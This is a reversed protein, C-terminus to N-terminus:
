ARLDASSEVGVLRNTAVAAGALGPPVSYRHGRYAVLAQRSVVGSEVLAAPYPAAPVPRLTESAAVTAVSARRDAATPHLCTAGRVSLSGTVVPGPRRSPGSTPCPAGGANRAPHNIKEVVGQPAGLPVPLDGGHRRLAERGPRVPGHDPGVGSSLRHGDPRVALRTVGGLERSIRDRGEGLQPQDTLPSLYGRWCGPHALSGVLLHATRGWRWHASPDPLDVWSTRLPHHKPPDAAIWHIMLSSPAAPRAARSVRPPPPTASM